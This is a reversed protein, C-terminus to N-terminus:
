PKRNAIVVIGAVFAMVLARTLDSSTRDSLKGLYRLVLTAVIGILIFAALVLVKKREQPQSTPRMASGLKALHQDGPKSQVSSSPDSEALKPNQVPKVRRRHRVLAVILMIIWHLISIAFLLAFGWSVPMVNKVVLIYILTLACLEVVTNAYIFRDFKSEEKM